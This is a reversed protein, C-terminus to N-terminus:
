KDARSTTITRVLTKAAHAFWPWCPRHIFSSPNEDDEDHCINDGFGPQEMGEERRNNRTSKKEETEPKETIRLPLRRNIGGQSNGRSVSGHGMDILDLLVLEKLSPHLPHRDEERDEVDMHVPGRNGTLNEKSFPAATEIEISAM